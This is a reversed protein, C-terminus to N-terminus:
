LAFDPDFLTSVSGNNFVNNIAQAFLPAISIQKIKGTLREEPIPITNCVVIEDAVSNELREYAPGSFIPHTASVRVSKAGRDKLVKMGACITGATDIMDDNLICNKGEVDGIISTIEAVNHSPRGKHMIALDANLLDSMKKAVKARGVDPSVVCLNDLGLGEFYDAFLNLATLHNVPKEFFGQIQGQHLDITTISDIGATELMRAVLKATIPERAAAKRDQRAYGYHTVVAHIRGASARRAADTMILLEMLADNVDGSISQVLFVDEGRVSEMFRAYTEGNAFKELTIDGLEVDLHGAIEDALEPYVSGSFIHLKREAARSRRKGM